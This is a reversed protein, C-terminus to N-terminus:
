AVDETRAWPATPEPAAERWCRLLLDGLARAVKEADTACALRMVETTLEGAWGKVWEYRARRDAIERAKDALRCGYEYDDSASVAAAGEVRRIWDYFEDPVGALWDDGLALIEEARAPDIGLFSGWHKPERILYACAQVAAVEWVHRANTGTLIRHLAMYDDQKIKVRENTDPFYVVLGECNPRPEAQLAAALSAHDFAAVRPGPWGGDTAPLGSEIDIAELLVLDDLGEYDVVIRNEPYLIEFLYTVGALPRWVYGYERQYVETAHLAQDSAFSGRTAIAYAGVENVPYLIGLSGDMKDTVVTRADLDLEPAGVQGHNFFKPFPRAVIEFTSLNYILGRCQLTVPNWASEYAAQETYNLIRLPLTPHDSARVNRALIQNALETQSLLDYLKM